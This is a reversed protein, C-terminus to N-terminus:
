DTCQESNSKERSHGGFRALHATNAMTARYKCSDVTCKISHNRNSRDM